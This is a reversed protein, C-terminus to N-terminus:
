GSEPPRAAMPELLNSATPSRFLRLHAHVAGAGDPIRGIVVNYDNEKFRVLARAKRTDTDQPAAQLWLSQFM